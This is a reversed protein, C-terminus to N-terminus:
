IYGHQGYYHCILLLKLYVFNTHQYIDKVDHQVINEAYSYCVNKSSSLEGTDRVGKMDKVHTTFM